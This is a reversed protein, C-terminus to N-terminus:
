GKSWAESYAEERTSVEIKEWNWFDAEVQRVNEAKSTKKEKVTKTKGAVLTDEDLESVVNRLAVENHGYRRQKKLQKSIEESFVKDFLSPENVEEGDSEVDTVKSADEEPLDEFIVNDLIDEIQEDTLKEM